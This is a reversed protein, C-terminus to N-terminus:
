LHKDRSAVQAHGGELLEECDLFAIVLFFRPKFFLARWDICRDRSEASKVLVSGAVGGAAEFCLLFMILGSGGFGAISEVVMQPPMKEITAAAGVSREVNPAIAGACHCGIMPPRPAM